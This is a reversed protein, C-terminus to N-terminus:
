KYDPDKFSKQERSILVRIISQQSVAIEEADATDAPSLLSQLLACACACARPPQKSSLHIGLSAVGM